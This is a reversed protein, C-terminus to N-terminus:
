HHDPPATRSASEGESGTRGSGNWSRAGAAGAGGDEAAPKGGTSSCELYELLGAALDLWLRSCFGLQRLSVADLGVSLGVGVHLWLRAVRGM